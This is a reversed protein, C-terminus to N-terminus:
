TGQARLVLRVNVAGPNAHREFSASEARLGGQQQLEVLWAIVAAFPAGEIQIRVGRSGDPDIRKLQERLGHRAAAQEATSVPNGSPALRPAGRLKEALAAQERVRVLQAQVSSLRARAGSLGSRVPSWVLLYLLVVGLFGGLLIAARREREGLAKWRARWPEIWALNM